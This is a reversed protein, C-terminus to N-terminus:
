HKNMANEAKEKLKALAKRAQHERLFFMDALGVCYVVHPGM